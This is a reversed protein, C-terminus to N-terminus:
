VDMYRNQKTKTKNKKNQKLKQTTLVGGYELPPVHLIRKHMSWDM